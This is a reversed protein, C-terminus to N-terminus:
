DLEAQVKKAERRKTSSGIEGHDCWGEAARIVFRKEQHTPNLVSSYLNLLNEVFEMGITAYQDNMLSYLQQIDM